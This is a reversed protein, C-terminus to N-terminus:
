SKERARAEGEEKGASWSKNNKKREKEYLRALFNEKRVYLVRLRKYLFWSQYALIKDKDPL